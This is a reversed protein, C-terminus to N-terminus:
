FNTFSNWSDNTECSLEVGDPLNPFLDFGTKQEIEDVSVAYNTFSDGSYERNEFWFGVASASTVQGSSNRKVKLIAKWFYNPVPVKSPQVSSSTANLYKITESGGVTKYAVGTVVYVTDTSSTLNRVSNELSNWVSGNFKNGIQPSQNTLYYLEEVRKSDNRDANPVIHGRSYADNGYNTGYSNNKVDIQYKSDVYPNYRWTSSASGSLDSATLRYAAWLSGYNEKDYLYSYNRSKGNGLFGAQRNSTEAVAPLEMWQPVKGVVAAETKFSKVEGYFDTNGVQIVARYYYTTNPTLGTVNVSFSGAPAELGGNDYYATSNLSSSSTWYEFRAEYPQATAEKYSASLTAGTQGINSAGATIM